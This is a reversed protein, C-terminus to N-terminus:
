KKRQQIQARANKIANNLFFDMPFRQSLQILEPDSRGLTGIEGLFAIYRVRAQNDFTAKLAEIVAPEAEATGIARLAEKAANEHFFNGLSRAIAKTGQPDRIKGLIRICDGASRNQDLMQIITPVNESTGWTEVAKLLDRDAALNVKAIARNLARAVDARRQADVPTTGFWQVASNRRGNDPSDLDAISQTLLLDQRTNLRQLIRRADNRANQDPHNFCKLLASEAAPGMEILAESAVQGDFANGLKRTLAEAGRADKFQGLAKMATQRYQNDWVTFRTKDVINVYTPLNEKKAWRFFADFLDGNGLPAPNNLYENVQADLVAVAEGRQAHNTDAGKFWAYGKGRDQAPGKILALARDFKAADNPDLREGGFPDGPPFFPDKPPPFDIPPNLIPPPPAADAVLGPQPRVGRNRVSSFFFFGVSVGGCVMLLLLFAGGGLVFWMAGGGGPAQRSSSRRRPTPRRDDDESARRGRRPRDDENDENSRKRRSRASNADDDEDEGAARVVSPVAKVTPPDGGGKLKAPRPTPSTSQIAGGDAEPAEPSDVKTKGKMRIVSHCSECRIEMGPQVDDIKQQNSCKPCKFLAAM